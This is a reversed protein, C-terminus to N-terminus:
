TSTDVWLATKDSPASTGIVVPRYPLGNMQDVSLVQVSMGGRANVRGPSVTFTDACLNVNGGGIVSTVGGGADVTLNGTMTGGSKPLYTNYINNGKGDNTAKSASAANGAWNIIRYDNYIVSYGEPMGWSVDTGLICTGIYTGHFRGILVLNRSSGVARIALYYKHTTNDSIICPEYSTSTTRLLLNTANESEVKKYAVGLYIDNVSDLMNGGVRDSILIGVFGKKPQNIGTSNYWDTIDFMLLFKSFGSNDDLFAEKITVGDISGFSASKATLKGPFSSDGREDLIVVEKTSNNIGADVTSQETYFFMRRDTYVGDMFYGNKSNLKDLMTFTGAGATSNIIAQGQNGGLYTGTAKSSNLTGSMTDGTKSVSGINEPTLNVFGTRYTQETDGKIGLVDGASSFDDYIKRSQNYYYEANDTDEGDRTGTGGETYSQAKTAYTSAQAAKETATAADTEASDKSAEASEKYELAKSESDAAAEKSAQASAASAAAAAANQTAITASAAANTESTGAATASAASANKSAKASDESKKANVESKGAATASAAAKASEVRIDALYDPRLHKEQISGEKIEAKVKGDPNITFHVTDSDLFEYQTILSSLDVYKITGDSLEIILRQTRYDYDFNIALKELLTDITYSTGNYHIITFIGTNEDYEIYKVLQQAESKDLKATDLFIVRNDVEDTAADIKNLNQENLPTKDSPYNEWVIRYYCKNM